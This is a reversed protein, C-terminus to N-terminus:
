MVLDFDRWFGTLADNLAASNWFHERSFLRPVILVFNNVILSKKRIKKAFM